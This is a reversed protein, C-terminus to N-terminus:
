AAAPMVGAATPGHPAATLTDVLQPGRDPPRTDPRSTRDAPPAPAPATRRVLLDAVPATTRPPQPASLVGAAQLDADRTFATDFEVEDKRQGPTGWGAATHVARPTLTPDPRIGALADRLMATATADGRELDDWLATLFASASPVTWARSLQRRLKARRVRDVRGMASAHARVRSIRRLCASAQPRARQCSPARDKPRM